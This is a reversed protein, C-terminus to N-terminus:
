LAKVLARLTASFLDPEATATAAIVQVFPLLDYREQTKEVSGSITAIFGHKMLYTDSLGTLYWSLDWPLSHPSLANVAYALTNTCNETLTNYFRPKDHLKNTEEVFRTFLAQSTEPSLALPYMRVDHGLYLMRRALFDRETGWTYMLEYSNWLGTWASYPQGDELRAEISFSLATGDAFDFTLYTHGVADWSPFPELMFWARTITKPDVREDLWNKGVITSSAYTWDRVDHMLITGDAQAEGRPFRTLDERWDKDARPTRLAIFLGIVVALVILIVALIGLFRKM